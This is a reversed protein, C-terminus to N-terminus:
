RKLYGYAGDRTMIFSAGLLPEVFSRLRRTSTYIRTDHVLPNYTEKWVRKVLEEKSFFVGPNKIFLHSFAWLVERDAFDLIQGNIKLQRKHEDMEIENNEIDFVKIDDSRSEQGLLKLLNCTWKTPSSGLRGIQMKLFDAAYSDEPISSLVKLKESESVDFLVCALSRVWYVEDCPDIKDALEMAEKMRNKASEKRGERIELLSLGFVSILKGLHIDNASYYDYAEFLELRLREVEEVFITNLSLYVKIRFLDYAPSRDQYVIQALQRFVPINLEKQELWAYTLVDGLLGARDIPTQEASSLDFFRGFSTPVELLSNLQVMEALMKLRRTRSTTNLTPNNFIEVVLEVLELISGERLKLQALPILMDSRNIGFSKMPHFDPNALFWLAKAERLAGCELLLSIKTESISPPVKDQNIRYIACLNELEEKARKAKGSLRLSNALNGRIVLEVSRLGLRKALAVSIEEYALAEEYFGVECAAFGLYCFYFTKLIESRGDQQLASKFKKLEQYPSASNVQLLGRQETLKCWLWEDSNPDIMEYATQLLKSVGPDGTSQLTRALMIMQYAQEAPDTSRDVLFRLEELVKELGDYGYYGRRNVIITRRLFYADRHLYMWTSDTLELVDRERHRRSLDFVLTNLVLAAEDFRKLSILQRAREEQVEINSNELDLEQLIRERLKVIEDEKMQSRIFDRFAGALFVESSSFELLGFADLLKQLDVPLSHFVKSAFASPREILSLEKLFHLPELSLREMLTKFVFQSRWEFLDSKRISRNELLALSFASRIVSCHGKTIELFTKLDLDEALSIKIQKLWEELEEETLELKRLVRLEIARMPHIPPLHSTAGLFSGEKLHQTLEDLFIQVGEIREFNDIVLLGERENIFSCLEQVSQLSKKLGLIGQLKLLVEPMELSTRLELQYIERDPESAMLEKIFQKILSSKGSLPAGEILVSPVQSFLHAIEHILRTRVLTSSSQRPRLLIGKKTETESM